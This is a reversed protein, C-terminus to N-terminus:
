TNHRVVNVLLLEVLQQQPSRGGLASHKSLRNYISLYCPLWHDREQSNPFAMRYPMEKCLIQICREANGNTHYTYTRTRIQKLGLVAYAKAL